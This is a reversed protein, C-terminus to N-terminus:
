GVRAQRQPVRRGMPRSPAGGSREAASACEYCDRAEPMVWLREVAIPGGCAECRGYEGKMVRGLAAVIADLEARDRDELRTLLRALAGEQGEDVVDAEFNADLWRLDDVTRAVRELLLRRRALLMQRMTEAPVM